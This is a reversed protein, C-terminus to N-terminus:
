LNAMQSKLIDIEQELKAIRTECEQPSYGYRGHRILSMEVRNQRIKEQLEKKEKRKEARKRAREELKKDKYTRREAESMSYFNILQEYIEKGLRDQYYETLIRLVCVASRQRFRACDENILQEIEFRPKIIIDTM